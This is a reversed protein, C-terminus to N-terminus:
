PAFATADCFWLSDIVMLVTYPIDLM